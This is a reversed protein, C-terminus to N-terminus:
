GAYRFNGLVKGDLLRGASARYSGDSSRAAHELVIEMDRRTFRTREGSPRRITAGPDIVAHRPDFSTIFTEIQNYGLAWFVKTAIEIQGTSAEPYEPPDFQLFWTHGNADRATFGPNTGTTKERLIVWQESAPRAALNPGRVIEEASLDATGARNTFWSSDPVEDITNINLARTESPTRRAAVFLNYAYEYFLEIDYEAAGSADRSEPERAIPDDDYFRLGRTSVRVAALTAFLLGAAIIRKRM